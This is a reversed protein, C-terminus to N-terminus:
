GPKEDVSINSVPSHPYKRNKYHEDVTEVLADLASGMILGAHSHYLRLRCQVPSDLSAREAVNFETWAMVPLNNQCVDICVWVSDEIVCQLCRFDKLSVQWPLKEHSLGIRIKNYDEAPIVKSMVHLVTFDDLWHAM